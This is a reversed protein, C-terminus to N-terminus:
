NQQIKLMQHVFQIINVDFSLHPNINEDVTMNGMTIFCLNNKQAMITMSGIQNIEQNSIWNLKWM